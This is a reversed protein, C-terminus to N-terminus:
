TSRRCPPAHPRRCSSRALFAVRRARVQELVSYYRKSSIFYIIRYDRYILERIAEDKIEPVMRGMRPFRELQDAKYFVQEVFFAAYDPAVREYYAEIEELDKLAQPRWELVAAM